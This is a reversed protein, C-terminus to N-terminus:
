MTTEVIVHSPKILEGNALGPPGFTAAVETEKDWRTIERPVAM